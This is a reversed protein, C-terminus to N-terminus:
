LVWEAPEGIEHDHKKGPIAGRRRILEANAWLVSSHGISRLQELEKVQEPTPELEHIDAVLMEQTQSFDSFHVPTVHRRIRREFVWPFTASSVIGDEILEEWFERWPSTERSKGSEFWRFFAPINKGQIYIRLDNQSSENIPVLDDTLVELEDLTEKASSTFKYVGGVPIYTNFHKGKVLLYSDGIKIRYLYSLSLRVRQKRYRLSYWSLRLWRRNQLLGDVLPIAAGTALGSAVAFLGGESPLFLLAVVSVVVIGALILARM